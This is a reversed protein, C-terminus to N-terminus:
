GVELLEDWCTTYRRSLMDRRMKWKRKVGQSAIKVTGSGWEDNIRDVADMLVEKQMYVNEDVKNFVEFQLDKKSRIDTLYIGCKKYNIKPKYIQDLVRMAHKNIEVSFDTAVEFRDLKSNFYQRHDDRFRNTMLFVTVCRAVSDQKRLKESAKEVHYTIAQALQSKSKVYRGFSRSSTISQKPDPSEELDICSYGNLEMVTRMGTVTMKKKATKQKMCKLNYANEIGQFKLKKAYRRGVGWVDQLELRKLLEDVQSNDLCTFDLVGEFKQIAKALENAAKALTKTSAIGVSVPIGTWKMVKERLMRGFKLYSDVKLRDLRLFSEDISYIEVEPCFHILTQMVRQSMDGYLTYNSSFVKVNLKAFKHKCKFYPEGANVGLDKVEQSRAIVCGDNNTLVVVPRNRLEPHFVRECSVYFNNCDVLAFVKRSKDIEM